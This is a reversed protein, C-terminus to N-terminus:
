FGFQSIDYSVLFFFSPVYGCLLGWVWSMLQSLHWSYTQGSCGVPATEVFLLQRQSFYCPAIAYVTISM